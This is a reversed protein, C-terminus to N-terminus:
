NSKELATKATTRVGDALWGIPAELGEIRSNGVKTFLRVRGYNYAEYTPDEARVSQSDPKGYKRIIDEISANMDCMMVFESERDPFAKLAARAFESISEDTGTTVIDLIISAWRTPSVSEKTEAEASSGPKTEEGQMQSRAVGMMHGSTAGNEVDVGEITRNTSKDTMHAGWDSGKRWYDVAYEGGAVAHFNIRQTKTSYTAGTSYGVILETPGPLIRTDRPYEPPYQGPVRPFPKGSLREPEGNITIFLIRWDKKIITATAERPLDAGNWTPPTLACASLLLSAMFSFLFCARIRM